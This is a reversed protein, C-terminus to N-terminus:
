YLYKKRMEGNDACFPFFNSWMNIKKIDKISVCRLGKQRKREKNILIYINIDM